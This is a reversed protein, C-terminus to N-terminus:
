ETVEQNWCDTCSTTRCDVAIPMGYHSPCFNAVIFRDDVTMHNMTAAVIMKKVYECPPNGEHALAKELNTM